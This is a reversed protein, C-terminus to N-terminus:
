RRLSSKNHPTPINNLRLKTSWSSELDWAELIHISLSPSQVSVCYWSIHINFHFASDSSQM